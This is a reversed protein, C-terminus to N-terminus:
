LYGPKGSDVFQTLVHELLELFQRLDDVVRDLEPEDLSATRTRYIAGGPVVVYSQGGGNSGIVLGRAKQGAGM